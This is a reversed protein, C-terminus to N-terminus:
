ESRLATIVDLRTARRAPYWGALVGSLGAAGIAVALTAGSVEIPVGLAAALLQVLGSAVVVGTAGGVIAVVVAEALVEQVIRTRSAGLARRVGIERTRTTVSVLVTNTVVIIAALLAMASIPAAAAGIRQSLNLVFSRAADPTLLDFTDTTGPALGRIARLSVRARDEGDVAPRGDTTKAFIQLSRPAGFAREYASLPIWVYRDLSAGGSNGLTDQLGIVEFRRGAIRIPKGLADEVPYLAAAVDAGIVAVQAGSRDEDPRFFRGRVIALDRLGALTSWTGTIAGNEYTRGGAAVEARTQANPAYEVLGGALREIATLEIRRIAPNRQLQQQLERRSVRGPSAVQAILFTDAGFARSTTTRAYAAVGDLAAVVIVITAVAAAIALGGLASRLRHGAAARLGQGVADTIARLRSPRSMSSRPQVGRSDSLGRTVPVHDISQRTSVICKGHHGRATQQQGEDDEGEDRHGHHDAAATGVADVHVHAGDGAGVREGREHGGRALDHRRAIGVDPRTGHATQDTELHLFAIADLGALHQRTEVAHLGGTGRGRGGGTEAREFGLRPRGGVLSAGRGGFEFGGLCPAGLALLRQRARGVQAGAAQQGLRLVVRGHGIGGARRGLDPGGGGGHRAGGLAAGGGLSARGLAAGLAGAGAVQQGLGLDGRGDVADDGAEVDLFALHDDDAHLVLGPRDQHRDRIELARLASTM